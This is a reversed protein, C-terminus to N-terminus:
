GQEGAYEILYIAAGVGLTHRDATHALGPVCNHWATTSIGGEGSLGGQPATTLFEWNQTRGGQVIVYGIVLLLVILTVLCGACSPFGSIRLPMRYKLNSLIASRQIPTPATERQGDSARGPPKSVSQRNILWRASAHVLIILAFLVVGTAFLASRTCRPMIIEVAINRDAYASSFLFTLPNATLPKPFVVSNGIVMIM